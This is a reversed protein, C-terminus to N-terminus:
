NAFYNQAAQTDKQIQTKLTELSPFKQENRIKHKFIIKVFKGYIMRNFDFIFVELLTDKGDVSPRAGLNCVGQHTQNELIVEVAFVGLIPSINRKVKLNITPFNLTRGLQKGYIVKGTMFFDYGLMAKANKFDGQELANRIHSSSIRTNQHFVSNTKKVEFDFSQLLSFNGQRNLGFRFDDGVLCYQTNLKDVLITQIFDQASLQSFDQNFNVMIHIKIGLSKLLAHKDQLSSLTAQERAFFAQPTPSFSLLVAQLNAQKAKDVLRKIITKHGLHVGDFNGITVASSKLPPHTKLHRIIKM